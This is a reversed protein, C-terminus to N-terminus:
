ETVQIGLTEDCVCKLASNCLPSETNGYFANVAYYYTEGKEPVSDCYATADKLVAINKWEGSNETKHYVKYGKAGAVPEWNLRVMDNKFSASTMEPTAICKIVLGKSDFSGMTRGKASRVTYRYYQGSKVTKDIYYARDTTALYSWSKDGAGKRYIRYSDAGKVQSFSIGVGNNLNVITKLAPAFLCRTTVGKADYSSTTKGMVARIRYSYVNGNKVAKDTYSLVNGNKTEVIKKWKGNNEQKYIFYGTAKENRNWKLYIKNNANKVSTFKVVDLYMKKVNEYNTGFLRGNCARVTYIYEVGNEVTEDTYVTNTTNTLFKWTSKATKRYVRYYSTDETPEWRLYIGGNLNITSIIQPEKDEVKLSEEFLKEADNMNVSYLTWNFSGCHPYTYVRTNNKAENHAYESVYGNSGFGSCLSVHTFEKCNNCFFFIPDGAEIKGKNAEVPISNNNLTLKYVKGCDNNVLANYLNVVRRQYTKVLGGAKLCDSVFEACLGKGDNWHKSAYELAEQRNYVENVTAAKSNITPIIAIALFMALFSSMLRKTM